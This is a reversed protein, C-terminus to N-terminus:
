NKSTCDSLLLENLLKNVEEAKTWVMMHSGNKVVKDAKVKRLPITHDNDGHIHVIGDLYTERKWNIIMSATRKLFTPEKAKLMAKFVEKGVKRDPEVIPQAIQAGVKYLFKPVLKNLPIIRMFRYRHPLESRCKASSIVITQAPNVLESMEVAIM